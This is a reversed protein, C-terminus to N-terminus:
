GLLGREIQDFQSAITADVSGERTQVIVGGRDVAHGAELVIQHVDSFERRLEPLYAEIRALDDPHVLVQLEHRRATLEVARRLNAEAVPRGAAIEAKVVKAAVAMTLRLVEREADAIWEDRREEVAAAAKRLLDALPAADAAAAEVAEKRALELGERRAVDRIRDREAEAARIEARLRELEAQAEVEADFSRLAFPRVDAM